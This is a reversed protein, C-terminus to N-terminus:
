KVETVNANTVAVYYLNGDYMTQKWTVGLREDWVLGQTDRVVNTVLQPLDATTALTDATPRHTLTDILIPYKGMEPSRGGFFIQMDDYSLGALAKTQFDFEAIYDGDLYLDYCAISEDSDHEYIKWTV